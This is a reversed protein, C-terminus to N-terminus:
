NPWQGCLMDKCNYQRFLWSSYIIGGALLDIRKVEDIEGKEFKNLEKFCFEIQKM